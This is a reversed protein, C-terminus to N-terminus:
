DPKKATDDTGGADAAKPATGSPTSIQQKMRIPPDNRDLNDYVVGRSGKESLHEPERGLPAPTKGPIIIKNTVFKPNKNDEPM